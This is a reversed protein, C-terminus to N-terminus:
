LNGNRFTKVLLSLPIPMFGLLVGAGLGAAVGSFVQESWLGAIGGVALGLGAAIQAVGAWHEKYYKAIAKM